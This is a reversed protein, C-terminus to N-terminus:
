LSGPRPCGVMHTWGRGAAMAAATGPGGINANSATLVVERPLRTWRAFGYCVLAHVSLQVLIFALIWWNGVMSKLSGASAGVVGFFFLLFLGGLDQAKRFHRANVKSSVAVALLASVAVGMAPFGAIAALGHGVGYLVFATGLSVAATQLAQSSRRNRKGVMGAPSARREGDDSLQIGINTNAKVPISSIVALYIAMAINDAAMAGALGTRLQLIQATAAFNITGGVYTACLAGALKWGEMGLKDGFLLWAILTGLVTGATGAL